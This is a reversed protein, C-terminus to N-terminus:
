IYVIVLYATICNYGRVINTVIWGVHLEFKVNKHLSNIHVQGSFDLEVLFEFTHVRFM